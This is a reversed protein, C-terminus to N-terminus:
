SPCLVTTWFTKIQVWIQLPSQSRPAPTSLVALYVNWTKEGQSQDVLWDIVTSQNISQFSCDREFSGFLAWTKTKRKRLAVWVQRFIWQWPLGNLCCMPRSESIKCNKFANFHMKSFFNEYIFNTQQLALINFTLLGTGVKRLKGFGNERRGVFINILPLDPDEEWKSNLKLSIKIVSPDSM